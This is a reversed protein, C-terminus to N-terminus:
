INRWSEVRRAKAITTFHAGLERALERCSKESTRIYEVKEPSLKTSRANQMQEENTAWRCNSKSYGKSNDERDISYEPSPRKGMDHIFNEYIHWSPDVAIGRAGYRHYSNDEAKYCRSLM